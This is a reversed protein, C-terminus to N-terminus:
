PVGGTEALVGNKALQSPVSILIKHMRIMSIVMLYTGNTNELRWIYFGFKVAATVKACDNFVVYVDLKGHAGFKILLISDPPIPKTM